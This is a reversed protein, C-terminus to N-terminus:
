QAADGILPTMVFACDYGVTAASHRLGISFAARQRSTRRNATSQRGALTM